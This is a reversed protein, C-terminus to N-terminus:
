CSTECKAAAANLQRKQVQRRLGEFLKPLDKAAGGSVMWKPISGAMDIQVHYVAHTATGDRVPIFAWEGDLTSVRVVGGRAAPGHSNDVGSRIWLTEGQSGWTIHLTFDRDAIVPLDLRQYVYIDRDNASLVRSEVVHDTVEHANAYDMVAARVQAPPAEIDGEATLEIVPSKTQRYVEVGAHGGVHKYGPAQAAVLLPVLAFGIHM